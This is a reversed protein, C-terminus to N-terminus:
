NEEKKEQPGFLREILTKRLREERDMEEAMEKIEDHTHMSDVLGKPRAPRLPERLSVQYFGYNGPVEENDLQGMKTM